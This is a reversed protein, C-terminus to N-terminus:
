RDSNQRTLARQEARYRLWDTESWESVPKAEFSAPRVTADKGTAREPLEARVREHWQESAAGDNDAAAPQALALLGGTLVLGLGISWVRLDPRRVLQIAPM